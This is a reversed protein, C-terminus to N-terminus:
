NLAYTITAQEAMGKTGSNTFTSTITSVGSAFFLTIVGTTSISVRGNYYITGNNQVAQIMVYQTRTPNLSAPMGTITCATTNSTGSIAPIYLVVQGGNRVYYVPASTELTIGTLTGTFSGREDDSSVEIASDILTAASNYLFFDYTIEPDLFMTVRGASSLTMPNANPTVLDADAYTPSPTSTGTLYSQIYGSTLPDGNNDLYQQFLFPAISAM